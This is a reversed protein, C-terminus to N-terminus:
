HTNLFLLFIFNFFYIDSSCATSKVKLLKNGVASFIITQSVYEEINPNIDKGNIANVISFYNYIIVRTIASNM